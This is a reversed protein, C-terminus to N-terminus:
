DGKYKSKDSSMESQVKNYISNYVDELEQESLDGIPIEKGNQYDFSTSKLVNKYPWIPSDGYKREVTFDGDKLLFLGNNPFLIIAGFGSNNKPMEKWRYGESPRYIFYRQIFLSIDELSKKNEIEEVILKFSFNKM